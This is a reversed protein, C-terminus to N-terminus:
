EAMARNAEQMAEAVLRNYEASNKSLKPFADAMMLRVSALLSVDDSGVKRSSSNVEPEKHTGALRNRQRIALNRLSKEPMNKLEAQLQEVSMGTRLSRIWMDEHMSVGDNESITVPGDTVNGKTIFKKM